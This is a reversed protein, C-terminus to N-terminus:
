FNLIQFWRSQPSGYSLSEIEHWRDQRWQQLSYNASHTIVRVTRDPSLFTRNVSIYHDFTHSTTQLIYGHGLLATELAQRLIRRYRNGVQRETRLPFQDLTIPYSGRAHHKGSIM